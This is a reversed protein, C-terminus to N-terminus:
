NMTLKLKQSGINEYKSILKNTASRGEASYIMKIYAVDKSLILDRFLKERGVQGLERTLAKQVDGDIVLTYKMQIMLVTGGLIKSSVTAEPLALTEAQALSSGLITLALALAFHRM